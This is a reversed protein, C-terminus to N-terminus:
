QVIYVVDCVLTKTLVTLRSLGQVVVPLCIEHEDAVLRCGISVIQMKSLLFLARRLAVLSTRRVLSDVVGAQSSGALKCRPLNCQRHSRSRANSKRWISPVTPRRMEKGLLPSRRLADDGAASPSKHQAASTASLVVSSYRCRASSTPRRYSSTLLRLSQEKYRRLCMCMCMRAWGIVFWLCGGMRVRLCEGVVRPDVYQHPRTTAISLLIVAAPAQRKFLAAEPSM